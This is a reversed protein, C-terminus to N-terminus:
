SSICDSKCKLFLVSAIIPCPHIWTKHDQSKCLKSVKKLFYLQFNHIWFLYSLSDKRTILIQLWTVLGQIKLNREQCHIQFAQTSKAGSQSNAEWRWRSSESVGLSRHMPPTYLNSFPSDPLLSGLHSGDSLLSLKLKQLRQKCPQARGELVGWCLISM